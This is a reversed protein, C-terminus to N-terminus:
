SHNTIEIGHKQIENLTQIHRKLYLAKTVGVTMVIFKFDKEHLIQTHM